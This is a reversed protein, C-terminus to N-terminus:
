VAVRDREPRDHLGDAHRCLHGLVIRCLGGLRADEVQEIRLVRLAVLDHSADSGRDAKGRRLDRHGLQEPPDTAQEFRKGRVLREDDQEVVDVIGGRREELEEIVQDLRAFAHRDHQDAGGPVLQELLVGFPFALRSRRRDLELRQGRGVGFHEDVPQEAARRQGILDPMTHDLGGLAIREVDLLHDPHQGILAHHARRVHGFEDNWWGDLRQDGGPEVQEASLFSRDDLRGRHDPQHERLLGDVLKNGLRQLRGKTLVQCRQTALLEDPRGILRHGGLVGVRIAEVVDEDPVGGVVRQELPCPRGEVFAEHRPGLLDVAFAVALLLEFLDEAVMELLRETVPRLEARDVGFASLDAGARGLAKAAGAAPGVGSSVKWSCRVQQRAGGRKALIAIGLSDLQLHIEPLGLQLPAGKGIGGRGKVLSRRCRGRDPIYSQFGAGEEALPVDLDIGAVRTRAGAREFCSRIRYRDEFRGAIACSQCARPPQLDHDM